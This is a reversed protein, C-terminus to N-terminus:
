FGLTPLFFHIEVQTPKALEKVYSLRAIPSHPKPLTSAFHTAVIQKPVIFQDNSVL